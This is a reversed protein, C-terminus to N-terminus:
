PGSTPTTPEFPSTILRKVRVSEEIARLRLTRVYSRGRREGVPQLLGAGVLTKLDRGAAHENVGAAERYHPNTIRFGM